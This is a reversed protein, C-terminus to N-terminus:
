KERYLIVRPRYERERGKPNPSRFIAYLSELWVHVAGDLELVGVDDWSVNVMNWGVCHMKISTGHKIDKLVILRYHFNNDFVSALVLLTVKPQNNSLILRSEFEICKVLCSSPPM